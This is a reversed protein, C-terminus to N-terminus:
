KTIEGGFGSVEMSPFNQAYGDLGVTISSSKTSSNSQVFVISNSTVSYVIGVHNIRNPGGIVHFFVAAGPHIQTYKAEGRELYKGQSKFQDAMGQANLSMSAGYSKNVLHTCWFLCNGCSSIWGPYVPNPDTRFKDKNFLEPYTPSNNWYCWFGKELKNVIEWAKQAITSSSTNPFSLPEQTQSCNAPPGGNSSSSSGPYDGFSANYTVKEVSDLQVFTSIITGTILSSGWFIAAAIASMVILWFASVAAIYTATVLMSVTNVVAAAAITAGGLMVTGFTGVEKLSFDTGYLTQFVSNLGKKVFSGVAFAIEIGVAIIIGLGPIANLSQVATQLAVKIGLKAAVKTAAMMALKKVAEKSGNELIIKGIKGGIAKGIRNLIMTGARNAFYSKISGVPDFIYKAYPIFKGFPSSIIKNVATNYTRTIKNIPKALEKALANNKVQILDKGLKKNILKPNELYFKGLATQPNNKAYAIIQNPKLNDSLKVYEGFAEKNKKYLFGLRSNPHDKVYKYITNKTSNEINYLQNRLKGFLQPNAKLLRGIDSDPKNRGHEIAADLEKVTLGKGYLLVAEKSLDDNRTKPDSLIAALKTSEYSANLSLGASPVDKRIAKEIADTGEMKNPEPFNRGKIGSEITKEHISIITKGTNELKDKLYDPDTAYKGTKVYNGDKDKEYKEVKNNYTNDKQSKLHDSIEQSNQSNIKELTEQPLSDIKGGLISITHESASIKILLSDMEAKSSVKKIKTSLESIALQEKNIIENIRKVEKEQEQIANFIKSIPTTIEPSTKHLAIDIGVILDNSNSINLAGSLYMAEANRVILPIQSNLNDIQDKSLDSRNNINQNVAEYLTSRIQDMPIEEGATNKPKTLRNIYDTFEKDEKAYYEEKDKALAARNERIANLKERILMAERARKVANAVSNATGDNEAQEEKFKEWEAVMSELEVPVSTVEEKPKESEYLQKNLYEILPTIDESIAKANFTQLDVYTPDPVQGTWKELYKKYIGFAEGVIEQNYPVTLDSRFLQIAQELTKILERIEGKDM